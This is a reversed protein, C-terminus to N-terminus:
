DVRIRFFQSAESAPVRLPSAGEVATWPGTVNPSLQLTGGGSWGIILDDGDRRPDVFVPPEKAIGGFIIDGAGGHRIRGASDIVLPLDEIAAGSDLYAQDLGVRRARNAWFYQIELDQSRVGSGNPGPGRKDDDDIGINFGMVFGDDLKNGSDPDEFLRKHFRMETSWGNETEEGFGFMDGDEGYTWDVATSWRQTGDDKGGEPFVTDSTKGEYNFYIHGGYADMSKDTNLDFDDNLVDVVLEIADDKWYTRPTDDSNVVDDFVDVGVYVWDDDHALYFTFSSDAPNDWSRDGPFANIHGHIGGIVTTGAFGGYEDASVNADLQVSGNAVRPAVTTTHDIDSWPGESNQDFDFIDFLIVPLVTPNPDLINANDAIDQIGSITIDYGRRQNLSSVGLLVSMGDNSLVASNVTVGQDVSYNAIEEASAKSVRESFGVTIEDLNGGTVAFLATPSVVDVMVTLVAQGSTTTVGKGDTVRVSFVDGDMSLDTEAVTLHSLTAGEIPQGNRLWQFSTPQEAVVDVIFTAPSPESVSVSEPSAEIFLAAGPVYPAVVKTPIQEQVGNPKTWGLRWWAGGSGEKQLVEFYYKQGKELTVPESRRQELRAGTFLGEASSVSGTCCQPEFAAPTGGSRDVPQLGDSLWFEAADDSALYFQYDGSMPAEIFGQTYTGFNDFGAEDIYELLDSGFLPVSEQATFLDPFSEDGTLDAVAVGEIGAFGIGDYILVNVRGAHASSATILGAMVMAWGIGHNATFKM